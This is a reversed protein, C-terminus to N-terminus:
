AQERHAGKDLWAQVKEPSGTAEDSMIFHAFSATALLISFSQPSMSRTAGILDNELVRLLFNGPPIHEYHYRILGDQLHAPILFNDLYRQFYEQPLM